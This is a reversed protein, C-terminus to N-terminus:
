HILNQIKKEFGKQFSIGIQCVIWRSEVFQGKGNQCALKLGGFM